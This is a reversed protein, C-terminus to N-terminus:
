YMQWELFHCEYGNATVGWEGPVQVGDGSGALGLSGSIWKRDLYIQRNKINWVFPIMYSTTKYSQSRKCLM